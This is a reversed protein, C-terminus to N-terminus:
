YTKKGYYDRYYKRYYDSTEFEACNLIVGLIKKQDILQLERKVLDRRTKDALIVVIVGDVMQSLFQTESTSIIPTSDIIIYTDRYQKKLQQVLNKMRISAILEAPNTPNVGGPILSLREIETPVLTEEISAREELIDLLGAANRLGLLSTLSLRRLDADVLIASDDLGQAITGSLNLSVTTKGEGPMCSTILISRLGNALSHTTIVSRLKRFQEALLSNSNALLNGVSVRGIIRERQDAPRRAPKQPEIEIVRLPGTQQRTDEIPEPTHPESAPESPLSAGRHLAEERQAKLLAEYTKSMIKNKTFQTSQTLETLETFGTSQTLETLQTL